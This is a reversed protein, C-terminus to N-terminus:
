LSRYVADLVMVDQGRDLRRGNVFISPTGPIKARLGEESIRLLLDKTAGDDVCAALKEVPVGSLQAMEKLDDAWKSSSLQAQREFIWNHVAWGKQGLSEACLTVAALRCRYGDAKQQIAANCTGDLPFPKFTLRVGPHSETFTHLPLSASKCHPCLFDAFEVIEMKPEGPQAQYSLGEELKFNQLPSTKWFSLSEQIVWDSQRLGYADKAMGNTLFAFAPVLVLTVPIWRQSQLSQVGDEVLLPVPNQDCIKWTSILQLLSLAYAAICFLCYTGLQTVSIVGMVVSTLFIVAALWFSIRALRERAGSLDFLLVLLFVLLAANTLGGWVAVPIGFVESYSSLAVADCNFQSNINCFSKGDMLGSKLRYNQLALYTHTLVALLTFGAASLNWFNQKKM